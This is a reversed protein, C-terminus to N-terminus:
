DDTSVPSGSRSATQSAHRLRGATVPARLWLSSESDLNSAATTFACPGALTPRGTGESQCESHSIESVFRFPLFFNDSLCVPCCQSHSTQLLLTVLCVFFTSQDSVKSVPTGLQRRRTGAPTCVLSASAPVVNPSTTKGTRSQEIM